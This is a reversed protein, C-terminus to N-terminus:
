VPIESKCRRQELDKANGTDHELEVDLLRLGPFRDLLHSVTDLMIHRGAGSCTLASVVRVKPLSEGYADLSAASRRARRTTSPGTNKSSQSSEDSPSEVLLELHIGGANGDAINWSSISRFLEQMAGTFVRTTRDGDDQNEQDDRQWSRYSPLAVHLTIVQVYAQRLKTVNNGLEELRASTLYLERFTRAEIARQFNRSVVAYSNFWQHRDLAALADVIGNAVNPPIDRQNSMTVSPASTATM